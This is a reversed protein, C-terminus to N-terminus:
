LERYSSHDYLLVLKIKKWQKYHSCPCAPHIGSRHIQTGYLLTVALIPILYSWYAQHAQKRCLAINWIVDARCPIKTLRPLFFSFPSLKQLYESISKVEWALIWESAGTNRPLTKGGEMFVAPYETHQEPQRLWLLGGQSLKDQTILGAHNYFFSFVARRNSNGLLFVSGKLLKAASIDECCCIHDM